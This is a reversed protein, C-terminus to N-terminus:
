YTKINRIKIRGITKWDVHSEQRVDGSDIIGSFLIRTEGVSWYGEAYSRDPSIYLNKPLIGTKVIKDVLEVNHQGWVKVPRTKGLIKNVLRYTEDTAEDNGEFMELKGNYHVLIGITDGQNRTAAVYVSIPFFDKVTEKFYQTDFMNHFLTKVDYYPVKGLKSLAIKVAKLMMKLYDQVYDEDWHDLIFNLNFSADSRYNRERQYLKSIFNYTLTNSEVLRNLSNELIKQM